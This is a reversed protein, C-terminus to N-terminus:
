LLGMVLEFINKIVTIISIVFLSKQFMFCSDACLQFKTLYLCHPAVQTSPLRLYLYHHHRQIVLELFAVKLKSKKNILSALSITDNRVYTKMGGPLKQVMHRITASSLMFVLAVIFWVLVTSKLKMDDTTHVYMATMVESTTTVNVGSNGYPASLVTEYSESSLIVMPSQCLQSLVRIVCNGYSELAVTAIPSQHWL